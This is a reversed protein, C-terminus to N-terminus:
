SLFHNMVSSFFPPPFLIWPPPNQHHNIYFSLSFAQLLKYNYAIYLSSLLRNQGSRLQDWEAVSQSYEERNIETQQTENWAMGITKFDQWIIDIWNKRPSWPKQKTHDMQKEMYSTEM